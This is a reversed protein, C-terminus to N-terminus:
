NDLKAMPVIIPFPKACVCPVLATIYACQVNSEKRNTNPAHQDAWIIWLGLKFWNLGKLCCAGLAEQGLIYQM